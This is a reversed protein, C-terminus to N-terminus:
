MKVPPRGEEPLGQMPRSAAGGLTGGHAVVERLAGPAGSRGIWSLGREVRVAVQWLAVTM